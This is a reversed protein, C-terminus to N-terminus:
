LAVGLMITGGILGLCQAPIGRLMEKRVGNLSTYTSAGTFAMGFWSAVSLCILLWSVKELTSHSTGFLFLPLFVLGFLFLGCLLGKLSFAKGPIWPLLLPVAV